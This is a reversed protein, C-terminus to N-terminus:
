LDIWFYEEINYENLERTKIKNPKENERSIIVFHNESDNSYWWPIVKIKSDVIDM